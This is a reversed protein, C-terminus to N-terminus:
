EPHPKAAKYLGVIYAAVVVVLVASFGLIAVNLGPSLVGGASSIIQWEILAFGVGILAKVVLTYSDRVAYVADSNEPTMHLAPLVIRQGPIASGFTAICYAVLGCAPLFFLTAKPGYDVRGDTGWHTAISPPLTAYAWIALGISVLTGLLALSELAARRSSM